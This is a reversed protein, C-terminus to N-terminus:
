RVATPATHNPDDEVLRLRRSRPRERIGLLAEVRARDILRAMRKGAAQGQRQGDAIRGAVLPPRLHQVRKVPDLGGGVVQEDRQRHLADVYRDARFGDITIERYAMSLTRLATTATQLDVRGTSAVIEDAVVLAEAVSMEPM